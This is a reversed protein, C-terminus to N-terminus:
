NLWPQNRKFQRIPNITTSLRFLCYIGVRSIKTKPKSPITLLKKNGDSMIRIFDNVCSPRMMTYITIDSGSRDINRKKKHCM